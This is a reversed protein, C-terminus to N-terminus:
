SHALPKHVLIIGGALVRLTPEQPLNNKNGSETRVSWGIRFRPRKPATRRLVNIQQRLKMYEAEIAARSPLPGVLAWWILRCLDSM